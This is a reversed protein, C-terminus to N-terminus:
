RWRGKQKRKSAIRKMLRNKRLKKVTIYNKRNIKGLPRSTRVKPPMYSEIQETGKAPTGDANEKMSLSRKKTKRFVFRLPVGELNFDRQLKSRLFRQFPSPVEEANTFLGFTPPRIIIYLLLIINMM